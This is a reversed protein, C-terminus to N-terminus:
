NPQLMQNLLPVSYVWPYLITYGNCFWLMLVNGYNQILRKLLFQPLKIKKRQQLSSTADTRALVVSTASTVLRWLLLLLCGPRWRILLSLWWPRRRPGRPHLSLRSWWTMIWCCQDPLLSRVLCLIFLRTYQARSRVLSMHCCNCVLVLPRCSSWSINLCCHM